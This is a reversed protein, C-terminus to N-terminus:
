ARPLAKWLLEEVLHSPEKGETAANTKVAEILAQSLRLTWQKINVRPHPAPAHAPAPPARTGDELAAVRASLDKVTSILERIEPVAVVTM